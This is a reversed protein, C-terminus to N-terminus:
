KFNKVAFDLLAERENEVSGFIVSDLLDSLAKGIKEGYIGVSLIDTGTVKLDSIKYPRKEKLLRLLLEMEAKESLGLLIKTDILLEADERDLRSLTFLMTRESDTQLALSSLVATGSKITKNDAHLRRMAGEFDGATRFLSILRSLPLASFFRSSPPLNDVNLEPIVAKFVSAYKKIAPYAFEGFVTKKFETLIRESSINKLLHSLSFIANETAKEIEFGLQASFRVARLIRLADESFRSVPDGVTRIVGKEIDSIGGHFDSFGDKPNYCVANMTFDRRSTDLVLERTFSVESPHRCDLYDGETRYTTIEYGVGSLVLTVTGHKIGTDVIKEGSFVAKVEDPTASTTIDYDSVPRSLLFDRVGGGVINAEFGNKILTNLIYKVSKPLVPAQM